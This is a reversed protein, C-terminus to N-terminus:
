CTNQECFFFHKRCEATWTQFEKLKQFDARRLVLSKQWGVGSFCGLNSVQKDPALSMLPLLSLLHMYGVCTNLLIFFAFSHRFCLKKKEVIWFHFYLWPKHNKSSINQHPKINPGFIALRSHDNIQNLQEKEMKNLATGVLGKSSRPNRIGALETSDFLHLTEWASSVRPHTHDQPVTCSSQAWALVSSSCSRGGSRGLTLSASNSITETASSSRSCCPVM